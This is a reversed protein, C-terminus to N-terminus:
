GIGDEISSDEAAEQKPSCECIWEASNEVVSRLWSSGIDVVKFTGRDPCGWISSVVLWM